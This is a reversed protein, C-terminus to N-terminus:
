GRARAVGAAGSVSGLGSAGERSPLLDAAVSWHLHCATRCSGEGELRRRRGFSGCHFQQSLRGWARATSSMVPSVSGKSECDSMPRGDGPASRAFSSRSRRGRSVCGVAPGWGCRGCIATMLRSSAGRPVGDSPTCCENRGVLISTIECEHIVEVPGRQRVDV